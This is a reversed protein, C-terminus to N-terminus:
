GPDARVPRTEASSLFFAGVLTLLVICKKM